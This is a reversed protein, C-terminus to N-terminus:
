KWATYSEHPDERPNPPLSDWIVTFDDIICKKTMESAYIKPFKAALVFM